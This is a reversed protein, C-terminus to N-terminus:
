LEVPLVIIGLTVTLHIDARLLLREWWSWQSGCSEHDCVVSARRKNNQEIFM